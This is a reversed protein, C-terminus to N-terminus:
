LSRGDLKTPRQARPVPELKWLTGHLWKGQFSVGGSLETLTLDSDEGSVPGMSEQERSMKLSSEEQKKFM